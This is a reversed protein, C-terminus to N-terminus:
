LSRCIVINYLQGQLNTHTELRGNSMLSTSSRRTPPARGSRFHFICALQTTLNAPWQCFNPRGDFSITSGFHDLYVLLMMSFNLLAASCTSSWWIGKTEAITATQENGCRHTAPGLEWNAMVDGPVVFQCFCAGLKPCWAASWPAGLRYRIYLYASHCMACSGLKGMGPTCTSTRSAFRRIKPLSHVLCM